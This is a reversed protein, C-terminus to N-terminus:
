VLPSRHSSMRQRAEIMLVQSGSKLSEFTKMNRFPPGKHMMDIDTAIYTNTQEMLIDDVSMTAGENVFRIGYIGM